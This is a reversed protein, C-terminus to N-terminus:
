ELSVGNNSITFVGSGFHITLCFRLSSFCFILGSFGRDVVQRFIEVGSEKKVGALFMERNPNPSM